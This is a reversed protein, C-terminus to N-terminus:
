YAGYLRDLENDVATLQAIKQKAENRFNHTALLRIEKPVFGAKKADALVTKFDEKADDAEKLCRTARNIFGKKADNYEIEEPTLDIAIDNM